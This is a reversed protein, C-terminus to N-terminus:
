ASESESEDVSAALRSKLYRSLNILFPTYVFYCTITWSVLGQGFIEVNARPYYWLNFLKMIPIEALPCAIGVVSALLFGAATNDILLWILEAAAFLVYAEINDPVGAQYMEASVQIFLVLAALSAATKERLSGIRPATKEDLQLQLLGVSAYFLGLLPPVWVNTHLPGIDIAGTQYVMLDVRSHLGDILPGLTFGCGFLIISVMMTPLKGRPPPPPPPTNNNSNTRTNAIGPSLKRRRRWNSCIKTAIRTTNYHIHDPLKKKKNVLILSVSSGVGVGVSSWVREGGVVAPSNLNGFM